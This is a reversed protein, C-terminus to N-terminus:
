ITGFCNRADPYLLAANMPGFGGWNWLNHNNSWQGSLYLFEHIEEKDGGFLSVCKIENLREVDWEKKDVELNRVNRPTQLTSGLANFKSFPSKLYFKLREM